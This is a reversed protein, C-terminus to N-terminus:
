SQLVFYWIVWLVGAAYLSAVVDDAMIGWGGPLRELWNCPWPKTIDFARHLGFGILAIWLGGTIPVLLFVLPVTSFEDWVVPGPDKRALDRAARDCLPVGLAIMAAAAVWPWFPGPLQAYLYALPLGWISGFSGPAPMLLGIGLGSALWVALSNRAHPPPANPDM